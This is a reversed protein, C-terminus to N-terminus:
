MFHLPFRLKYYSLKFNTESCMIAIKNLFIDKFKCPMYRQIKIFLGQLDEVFVM